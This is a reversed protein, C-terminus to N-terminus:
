VFLLTSSHSHSLVIIALFCAPVFIYHHSHQRKRKNHAYTLIRAQNKSQSVQDHYSVWDHVKVQKTNQTFGIYLVCESTKRM